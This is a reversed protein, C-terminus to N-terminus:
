TTNAELDGTTIVARGPETGAGTKGVGMDWAYGGFIDNATSDLNRAQAMDNFSLQGGASTYSEALNQQEARLATQRAAQLVTPGKAVASVNGTLLSSLAVAFSLLIVIRKRM